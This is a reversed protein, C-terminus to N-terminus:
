TNRMHLHFQFHDLRTRPNPPKASRYAVKVTSNRVVGLMCIAGKQQPSQNGTLSSLFLYRQSRLLNLELDAMVSPPNLHVLAM